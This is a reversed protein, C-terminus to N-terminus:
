IGRLIDVCFRACACVRAHVRVRRVSVSACLRAGVVRVCALVCARACSVCQMPISNDSSQKRAEHEMEAKTPQTAVHALAMPSRLAFPLAASVGYM